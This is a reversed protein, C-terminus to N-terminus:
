RRLDLREHHILSGIISPAPIRCLSNKVAKEEREANV